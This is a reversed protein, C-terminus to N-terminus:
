MYAALQSYQSLRSIDSIKVICVPKRATSNTFHIYSSETHTM